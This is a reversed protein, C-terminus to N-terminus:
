FGFSVSPKLRKSFCDPNMHMVTVRDEEYIIHEYFNSENYISNVDFDASVIYVTRLIPEDAEVVAEIKYCEFSLNLAYDAGNLYVDKSFSTNNDLPSTQTYSEFEEDITVLSTSEAFSTSTFLILFPITMKIM